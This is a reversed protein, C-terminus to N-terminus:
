YIQGRNHELVALTNELHKQACFQEVQAWTLYGYHSADWGIFGIPSASALVNSFFDKAASLEEPIICVYYVDDLHQQILRVARLVVENSGIKRHTKTSCPPFDLGSQLAEIGGDRLGEVLRVKHYLQAFLNSSSLRGDIGKMFQQWEYRISWRSTQIPKVKAEIFISKRKGDIDLLLLADLDGFDSLSQEIFIRADNVFTLNVESFPFSILRLLNSLLARSNQSFALEYLLSSVIGRESYGIIRLPDIGEDGSPM